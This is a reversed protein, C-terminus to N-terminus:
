EKVMRNTPHNVTVEDDMLVDLAKADGRFIARAHALDLQKVQAKLKPTEDNKQAHPACFFFLAPISVLFKL